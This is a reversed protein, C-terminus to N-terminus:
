GLPNPSAPKIPLAKCIKVRVKTDFQEWGEGQPIKIAVPRNHDVVDLSWSQGCILFRVLRAWNQASKELEESDREINPYDELRVIDELQPCQCHM